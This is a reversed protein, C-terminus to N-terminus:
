VHYRARERLDLGATSTALVYSIHAILAGLAVGVMPTGPLRRNYMYIHVVFDLEKEKAKCAQM